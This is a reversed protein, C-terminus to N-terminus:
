PIIFTLLFLSGGEHCNMSEVDQKEVPGLYSHRHASWPSRLM